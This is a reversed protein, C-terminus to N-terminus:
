PTQNHFSRPNQNPKPSEANNIETQIYSLALFPNLSFLLEPYFNSNLKPDCINQLDIDFSDLKQIIIEKSSSITSFM